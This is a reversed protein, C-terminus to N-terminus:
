LKSRDIHLQMTYNRMLIYKTTALKHKLQAQMCYRQTNRYSVANKPQLKHKPLTQICYRHTNQCLFAKRPPHDYKISYAQFNFFRGFLVM